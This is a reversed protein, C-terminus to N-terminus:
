GEPHKVSGARDSGYRELFEERDYVDIGAALALRRLDNDETALHKARSAMVLLIATPMDVRMRDRMNQADAESHTEGVLLRGLDVGSEVRDAYQGHEAIPVIWRLRPATMAPIDDGEAMADVFDSTVLFERKRRLWLLPLLLLPTLCWGWRQVLQQFPAAIDAQPWGWVQVQHNERDAIYIRGADDLTVDNPFRFQGPGSGSGGFSVLKAGKLTYIDVQHALGDSVVLRQNKEDVVIGRPIGSTAIFYKFVGSSDFVQVRRNNGDAVFVLGAKSVAVGNPFYFGGPSDAGKRVQTTRGWGALKAGMRDFVFMRHNFTDGVDSVFFSDKADFALALPGWGKALVADLPVFKRLFRGSGDFVYVGDLLRDSVYLEGKSDFAMHVPSRLKTDTGDAISSFSSLYKGDKTFVFVKRATTDSVFLRGDSSMAVGVPKSLADKGEGTIAFLFRPPALGGDRASAPLAPLKKNLTFYYAAYALLALILLLLALLFLKRRAPRDQRWQPRGPADATEPGIGSRETDSAV